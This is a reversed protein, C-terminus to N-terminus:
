SLRVWINTTRHKPVVSFSAGSGAAGTNGTGSASTAPTSTNTSSRWKGTSNSGVTYAGTNDVKQRAPFGSNSKNFAPIEYGSDCMVHSHAVTHTHSPGTHTHSPMNSVSLTVNDSGGEGVENGARLFVGDLKEWSGGFIEAPSTPSDSFYYSGVPYIIEWINDIQAQLDGPITGEMAENALDVAKDVASQLQAYFTTTDVTDFPVVIGCREDDLRTDTIRDATMTLSNKPVFVDCLGLEWVTESRTLTPRVPNDSPSGALVYLDISRADISSDWRLVVTDIRDSQNSSATLALTRHEPEYGTTGQIHCKGPTVTVTMDEGPSVAFSPEGEPMFVGNSFFTEYVERLDSAQYVRDYVPYGDEGISVAVSDWPFSRM